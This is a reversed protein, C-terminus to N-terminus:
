RVSAKDPLVGPTPYKREYVIRQLEGLSSEDDAVKVLENWVEDVRHTSVVYRRRHADDVANFKGIGFWGENSAPAGILKWPEGKIWGADKPLNVSLAGDASPVEILEEPPVRTFLYMEWFERIGCVVEWRRDDDYTMLDPAYEHLRALRGAETPAWLLDFLQDVEHSISEPIYIDEHIDDFEAYVAKQAM